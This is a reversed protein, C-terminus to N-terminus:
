GEADTGHQRRFAVESAIVPAYLTVMGLGVCILSLYKPDVMMWYSAAIKLQLAVPKVKEEPLRFHDRGTMILGLDAPFRVVAEFTEVEMLAAFEERAKAEDGPVGGRGAGKDARPKRKKPQGGEAGGRAQALAKATEDGGGPSEGDSAAVRRADALSDGVPADDKQFLGM